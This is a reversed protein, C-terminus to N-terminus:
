SSEPFYTVQQSEEWAPFKKMVIQFSESEVFANLWARLHAYRSQEFWERNVGAFQRVFPFIGIDAITIHEGMLYPSNALRADLRRLFREGKERYYRESQETYRDAYKYRDLWPKFCHDNFSLWTMIKVRTNPNSPWLKSVLVQNTSFSLAWFIIDLSESYRENGVLLQPVTTRGGLDLLAKPKHKLVVERLEVTISLSLLTYRARIAYPCRRFSYLISAM